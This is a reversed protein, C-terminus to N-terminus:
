YALVMHIIEDYVMNKKDYEYDKYSEHILQKIVEPSKFEIGELIERSLNRALLYRYVLQRMQRPTLEESINSIEAKLLDEEIVNLNFNENTTKSTFENTQEIQGSEKISDIDGVEKSNINEQAGENIQSVLNKIFSIRKEKPVPPLKISSIFLKDLYEKVLREDQEVYKSEIARKLIKEDVAIIAILRYKIEPDDLMVRIADVIEMIRDESCRDLDDIFLLLRKENRHKSWPNYWREKRENLSNKWAKLLFVLEKQIEAQLGLVHEFTPKSIVSKIFRKAPRKSFNYLDILRYIFYGIPIFGGIKSFTNGLHQNENIFIFWIIGFFLTLLPLFWGDFHGRRKISLKLIQYKQIFWNESFYKKSINEYLYAWIAPTNQYKWAQFKILIFESDNVLKEEIINLSKCVEKFFYTKGRGWKGFIGVMQGSEDKLNKLHNAFVKAIKEVQFTPKIASDIIGGNFPNPFYPTSNSLDEPNETTTTTTTTSTTTTIDLIDINFSDTVDKGLDKYIDLVSSDKPKSQLKKNILNLFDRQNNLPDNKDVKSFDYIHIESPNVVEIERRDIKHFGFEKKKIRRFYSNIQSKSLAHIYVTNGNDDRVLHLNFFENNLVKSVVM